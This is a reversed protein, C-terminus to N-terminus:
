NTYSLSTFAPLLFYKTSVQLNIALKIFCLLEYIMGRDFLESLM